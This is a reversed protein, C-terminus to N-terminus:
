LLALISYEHFVSMSKATQRYIYILSSHDFITKTFHKYRLTLNFGNKKQSLRHTTTFM